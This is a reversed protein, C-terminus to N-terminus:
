PADAPPSAPPAGAAGAPPAEGAALATAEERAAPPAEDLEDALTPVGKRRRRARKKSSASPSGSSPAESSSSPSISPVESSSISPTGSSTSAPVLKVEKADAASPAPAGARLPAPAPAPAPASGPGPGREADDSSGSEEAADAERDETELEQFNKDVQRFLSQMQPNNGTQSALKRYHGVITRFQMTIAPTSETSKAVDQVFNEMIISTNGSGLYDKYYTPFNTDLLSVSKAIRDFAQDCRPIAGRVQDISSMIVEAFERVDYDPASVAEYLDHSIAYMKHLVILVFQQDAPSLRDDIYIQKFNLQELDNLPCFSMGASRALFKDKLAKPDSLAKKHATLNKCTILISSVLGSAKAAEFAAAFRQLLEKPMAAYLEDDNVFVGKDRAASHGLELLPRLDPSTFAQDRQLTLAAIYAKLHAQPGPFPTLAKSEGLLTLLQIFRNAHTLMRVYKPYVVTMPLEEGSGGLVRKFMSLVDANQLTEKAVGSLGSKKAERKEQKAM